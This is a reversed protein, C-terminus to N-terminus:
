PHLISVTARVCKQAIIKPWEIGPKQLYYYIKRFSKQMSQHYPILDNLQLSQSAFFQFM